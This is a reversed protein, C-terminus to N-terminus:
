RGCQPDASRGRISATGLISAGLAQLQTRVMAQSTPSTPSFTPISLAYVVYEYVNGCAGSGFYGDGTGISCQQSGAPVPPTADTKDVNEALMTVTGPINWLVWHAMGNSLDQMLIVFSMTGAPAGTWSMPPSVNDGFSTYKVPFTACASAMAAPGCGAQNAFATSTLMFASAGGTGGAAGGGAGATAGGGGGRGAAGAAGGGSGGRGAAGGGSGGSGGSGASGVSGGSGASGVSGGSDVAALPASAAARGPPAWAAARGASGVSGGTGASGVSGGTGASGVSGGSGAAAGGGAGGTGGGDGSSCGGAALAAFLLPIVVGQIRWAHLTM